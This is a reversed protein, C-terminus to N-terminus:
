YNVWSTWSMDNQLIQIQKFVKCTFYM